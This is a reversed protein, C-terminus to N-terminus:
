RGVVDVQTCTIDGAILGIARLDTGNAGAVLVPTRAAVFSSLNGATAPNGDQRIYMDQNAVVSYIKGVVLTMISQSAVSLAVRTATTPIVIVIM